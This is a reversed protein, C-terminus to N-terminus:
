WFHVLLPKLLHTMVFIFHPYPHPQVSQLMIMSTVLICVFSFYLVIIFELNIFKIMNKSVTFVSIPSIVPCIVNDPGSGPEIDTSPTTQPQNNQCDLQDRQVQDTAEIELLYSAITERDLAGTVTIEGTQENISFKGDFTNILNYLIDDTHVDQSDQDIAEVTYVLHGINANELTTVNDHTPSFEPRHENFSVEVMITKDAMVNTCVVWRVTLMTQGVAKGLVGNGDVVAVMENSSIIEIENPDTILMRYGDALVVSLSVETREDLYYIGSLIELSVYSPILKADPSASVSLRISAVIPDLRLIDLLTSSNQVIIQQIDTLGNQNYEIMLSGSVNPTIVRLDQKFSGSSITLQLFLFILLLTISHPLM